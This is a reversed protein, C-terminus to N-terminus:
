INSSNIQLLGIQYKQATIIFENNKSEFNVLCILSLIQVFQKFNSLIIGIKNM